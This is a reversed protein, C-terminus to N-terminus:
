STAFSLRLLLLLVAVVVTVCSLLFAALLKAIRKPKTRKRFRCNPKPKPISKGGRGGGCLMSDALSVRAGECGKDEQSIEEEFEEDEEGREIEWGEGLEMERVLSLSLLLLSLLLLLEREVKVKVKM